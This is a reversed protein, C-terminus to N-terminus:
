IAGKDKLWKTYEADSHKLPKRSERELLIM